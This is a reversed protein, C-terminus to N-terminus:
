QWPWTGPTSGWEYCGIDFNGSYPRAGGAMDIAPAAQSTGANIAPSTSQLHYDGSITGTYGVFMPDATVTGTATLGNQLSIGGRANQYVLNNHYQNHTGTGSREQIGYGDNYNGSAFNHVVINNNVISYDNTGINAALVIGGAGNEFVTNNSVTDNNAAHYLHIGWAANHFSINNQIRCRANSVYIGHVSQNRATISGVDHVVNGIIDNDSGTYNTSDIGAGGNGNCLTGVDTPINHVHNNLVREFSNDARIGLCTGSAGVVEFGDFDVYFGGITVVTYSSTVTIKAGWRTDSVFRIRQSATGSAGINLGNENYTGPAVHVTWGPQALNAAHQVTRWPHAASGDNSDSGTTSVYFDKGNSTTSGTITVAANASATTDYFSRATVTVPNTAPVNGPATYLGTTSILGVTSNGGTIGAVQWNISTNTAGTVTGAFQKSQGAQVTASTPSIAVSVTTPTPSPTPTPIPTPTPTPSPAPTPTPTPAPGSVTLLLSKKYVAGSNDWAQVTARHSGSAMSVNTNLTTGAVTYVSKDDVYIRMATIHHSAPAQASAVFHVPSAVTSGSIPSTVNVKGTIQALGIASLLFFTAVFQISKQL